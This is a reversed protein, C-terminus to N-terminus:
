NGDLYKEVARLVDGRTTKTKAPKWRWTVAIFILLATTM